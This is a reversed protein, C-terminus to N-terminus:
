IDAVGGLPGADPPPDKPPPVAPRPVTAPPVDPPPVAPLPVAPPAADPVALAEDVGVRGRIIAGEGALLPILGVGETLCAVDTVCINCGPM